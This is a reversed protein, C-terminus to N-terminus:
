PNGGVVRLKRGSTQDRELKPEAKKISRSFGYIGAASVLELMIATFISLRFLVIKPDLGTLVAIQAIQPDESSALRLQENAEDDSMIKSVSTLEKLENVDQWYLSCFNKSTKTTADLCGSTDTWRKDTKVNELKDTLTQFRRGLARAQQIADKVPRMQEIRNRDSEDRVGAIFGFSSCLGFFIGGVFIVSMLVGKTRHKKEFATAACSLAFIKIIDVSGSFVPLAIKDFEDPSFGHWFKANMVVGCAAAALVATAGIGRAVKSNGDIM